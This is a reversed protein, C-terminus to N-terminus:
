LIDSNPLYICLIIIVRIGENGITPCNLLNISNYIYRSYVLFIWTWMGNYAASKRLYRRSRKFTYRCYLCSVNFIICHLM